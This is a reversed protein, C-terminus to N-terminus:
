KRYGQIIIKDLDEFFEVNLKKLETILESAKNLTIQEIELFETFDTSTEFLISSKELEIIQEVKKIESSIVSKIEFKYKHAEILEFIKFWKNNNLLCSYSNLNILNQIEKKRSESIERKRIKYLEFKKTM